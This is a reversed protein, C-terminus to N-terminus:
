LQLSDLQFGIRSALDNVRGEINFLKQGISSRALEPAKSDAIAGATSQSVTVSDLRQELLGHLRELEALTDNLRSLGQNVDGHQESVQNCQNM